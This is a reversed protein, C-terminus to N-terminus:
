GDNKDENECNNFIKDGRNSDLYLCGKVNGNKNVLIEYLEIYNNFKEINTTNIYIKNGDNMRFLFRKADVIKESVIYPKYEIESVLKLTEINIKNLREVFEEYIEKPVENILTPIGIYNSNNEIEKGSSLIIKDIVANYFLVKDETIQINLIGLYNKKIKVNSILDLELLKNKVKKSNIKFISEKDIDLYSKLYNDKLYTNGTINIEKIPMKWLYYICTVFLYGVLVLIILGRFRIKKKKVKKDM